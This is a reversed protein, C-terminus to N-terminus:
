YTGSNIQRFTGPSRESGINKKEREAVGRWGKACGGCRARDRKRAEGEGWWRQKGGADAEGGCGRRASEEKRECRGECGDLHV